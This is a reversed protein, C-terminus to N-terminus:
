ILPNSHTCNKLNLRLNRDLDFKVVLSLFIIASIVYASLTLLWIVQM